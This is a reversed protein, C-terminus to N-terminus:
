AFDEESFVTRALELVRCLIFADLGGVGDDDDERMAATEIAIIVEDMTIPYEKLNRM